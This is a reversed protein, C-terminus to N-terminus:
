DIGMSCVVFESEPIGLHNKDGKPESNETM